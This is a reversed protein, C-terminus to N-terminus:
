NARIRNRIRGAVQRLSKGFKYGAYCINNNFLIIDQLAETQCDFQAKYSDDAGRLFTYCDGGQKRSNDAEIYHAHTLPMYRNSSDPLFGSQYYTTTGEFNFCYLAALTKSGLKYLIINARDLPFLKEILRIHFHNFKECTFAGDSGKSTWRKEHLTKLVQYNEVADAVSDSPCRQLGGEKDLARKSRLIRKKRTPPYELSQEPKLNWSFQKLLNSEASRFTQRLRSIVQYAFYTKVIGSCSFTSMPGQKELWNKICSTVASIVRDEHGPLVMIDLSETVVESVSPEGTGIFRLILRNSLRTKQVYFPAMGVLLDTHYVLIVYPTDSEASFTDWWVKAWEWSMFISRNHTLGLLHSWNNGLENLSFVVRVDCSDSIKTNNSNM